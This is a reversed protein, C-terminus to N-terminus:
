GKGNRSKIHYGIAGLLGVGLLHVGIIIGSGLYARNAVFESIDLWQRPLSVAGAVILALLLLGHARRQSARM